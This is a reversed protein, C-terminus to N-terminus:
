PHVCFYRLGCPTPVQYMQVDFVKQLNGSAYLAEPTGQDLLIGRDFLALHDGYQMALDMDHLVMVVTKGQRALKRCLEMVQLQHSIDLYTTPEDLAITPTDQALAMALYVKQRTGGSLRSMPMDALEAIGVREMAADAIAYDEKRYKRPYSLHPFRGHLVLRRATIDPIRRSQPLYAVKQAVEASSFRSIPTGDLLIEGEYTQSLGVLGKLLTSKGCGNPGLIITVAGPKICLNVGHLVPTRDYGASFNRFEIM